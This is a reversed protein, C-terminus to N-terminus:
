LRFARHPRRTLAAPRHQVDGACTARFAGACARPQFRRTLCFDPSLFSPHFHPPVRDNLFRVEMAM